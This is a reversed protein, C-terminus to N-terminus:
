RRSSRFRWRTPTWELGTNGTGFGFVRDPVLEYLDVPLPGATPAAYDADFAGDVIRVYWQYKDAYGEAARALTAGDRVIAANGEVVLHADATETSVSCRADAALNRAKRSGPGAVFYFRGQLWLGLVPRLHARGSPHKTALWYIRGAELRVRAEDWAM